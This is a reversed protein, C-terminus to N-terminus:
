NIIEWTTVVCDRELLANKKERWAEVHLSTNHKSHAAQTAWNEYFMFEAKNHSARHLDYNICGEEDLTPRILDKLAAELAEEKGPKAKFLVLVSYTKSKM